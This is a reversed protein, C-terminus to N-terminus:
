NNCFWDNVPLAIEHTDRLICAPLIVTNHRLLETLIKLIERLKEWFYGIHGFNNFTVFSESRAFILDFVEIIDKCLSLVNSWFNEIYINEMFCWNQTVSMMIVDYFIIVKSKFISHIEVELLKKHIWKYNSSIAKYKLSQWCFFFDTANPFWLSRTRTRNIGIHLPYIDTTVARSSDLHGNLPHFHYHPTLAVSICM